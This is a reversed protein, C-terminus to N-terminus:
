TVVLITPDWVEATPVATQVQGLMAHDSAGSGAQLAALRRPADREPPEVRSIDM